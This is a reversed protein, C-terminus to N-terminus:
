DAVEPTVIPLTERPGEIEVLWEAVWAKDDGFNIYLWNSEQSRGVVEVKQENRLQGLVPYSEGPGSRVNLTQVSPSAYITHDVVPAATPLPPATAVPPLEVPQQMETDDTPIVGAPMTTTRRNLIELGPLELRWWHQMPIHFFLVAICLLAATAAALKKMALIRKLRSPEELTVPVDQVIYQELDRAKIQPVLPAHPLRDPIPRQLPVLRAAEKKVLKTGLWAAILTRADQQLVDRQEIYRFWDDEDIPSEMELLASLAAEGDQASSEQFLFADILARKRPAILRDLAARLKQTDAGRAHRRLKDHTREIEQRDASGDVGLQHYPSGEHWLM